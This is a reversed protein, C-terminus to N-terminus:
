PTITLPLESQALGKSTVVIVKGTRTGAPVTVTIETKAPNVTFGTGNVGRWFKVEFSADANNFGVGYITISTVGATAEYLSLSSIMPALDLDVTVDNEGTLAINPGSGPGPSPQNIVWLLFYVTATATETLYNRSYAKKIQINCAGASTSTITDGSIACGTATSGSVLTETVAGSGSGGLITIRFPLGLTAGFTNVRLSDQRAQTIELGSRQYLVAQYYDLSGITMTPTDASVTYSDVNTPVTTVTITDPSYARIPRLTFSNLKDTTSLLGGSGFWYTDAQAANTGQTSSWYNRVSLNGSLNPAYLADYMEKVELTSPLFWDSRGGFTLDAAIKAALSNTGLATNILRTNEAGSGIASSTGTVSTQVRAWATTSEVSLGSWNIPAVELYRGGSSIGTAANIATPSIYFITGGGPGTDGVECGGGQACPKTWDVGTYKRVVTGADSSVLGSIGFIPLSTAQQNNFVQSTAVGATVTITDAKSVTFTIPLSTSQGFNDTVTITDYYPGPTLSEQVSLRIQGPISTTDWNIGTRNGTAFSVTKTDGGSTVTFTEINLSGYKQSPKIQNINALAFRDKTANYNQLVKAQGLPARYLRVFGIDMASSPATSTWFWKNIFVRDTSSAPPVLGANQASDSLTTAVGNIYLEVKAGATTSDFVGVVHTWAGLTLTQSTRKYTWSGNYFGTFVTRSTDICLFYPVNTPSQEAGFICVQSTSISQLNIYAEITFAGLTGFGTASIYQSSSLKLNGSYDDNFTSGGVITVPKKTGSIDSITGNSRSYSASNAMDINFVLDNSEIESYNVVSPPASITISIPITVSASVSDTVTLTELYTGVSATDSIRLLTTGVTSTDLTIGPIVPSLTYRYSPTGSSITFTENRAVNIQKKITSVGTMQLAGNIVAFATSSDSIFLGATDSDTVTLRYLYQSGSTSTDTPVWAFFANSAGTGQKITTFPGSAGATTSEWRFTRTLMATASDQAVNTTFTETMGVNLFANVPKTYTPLAATIYRVVVVGASGSIGAGTAIASGGYSVSGGWGNNATTYNADVSWTAHFQNSGTHGYEINTIPDIFGDGAIGYCGSATAAGRASGGLGGWGWGGTAGNYGSPVTGGSPGQVSCSGSTPNGGGGGGTAVTSGGAGQFNNSGGGGGGLATIGAGVGVYSSGGNRNSADDAKTTAGLGGVGVRVPIPSSATFSQVPAYTVGGGGGAGAPAANRSDSKGAGGGGGVVITTASLTSPPKWGGYQTIYTRPFKITTYPGSTTVTKVDTFSLTDATWNFLDSRAHGGYALNPIKFENNRAGPVFNMDFYAQMLPSSADNSHMSEQIESQTRAVKWIKFEDIDGRWRETGGTILGIYSWTTVQNLTSADSNTSATTAPRYPSGAKTYALQGNIYLKVSDGRNGRLTKSIAVHQWEGSKVAVGTPVWDWGGDGYLIFEYLGNRVVLRVSNERAFYTCVTTNCTADPRLWAEVTFTDNLNNRPDQQMFFYSYSATITNTTDTESTNFYPSLTLGNLRSLYIEMLRIEGVSLERNFIIVDSVQFDSRQVSTWNNIGFNAVSTLQTGISDDNDAVDIGNARYAVAQDTSLLWQTNVVRADDTLWAGHHTERVGYHFGSLWNADRATFVRENAGSAVYRAVHFLTYGVNLNQLTIQSSPTGRVALLSKTSGTTVGGDTVGQNLISLGTATINADSVSANTGSSDIWGKRSSDLLQLDGPSYRGAVASALTAPFADASNTAYRILIVGSGGKGGPLKMGSGTAIGGGGGGGTNATADSGPQNVSASSAFGGNGGGNVGTPATTAAGNPCSGGGGGGSYTNLSGYFYNSIGARGTLGVNFCTAGAGGAGGSFGGNGAVGGAGGASGPVAPSTSGGLASFVVGASTRVTTSDGAFATSRFGFNGAGGGYGVKLDLTSGPTVAISSRSLAAGGGGGGGSDGAGGGGGGVLFLDIVSVTAPVSWTCTATTTVRVVTYVDVTNSTTACATVASYNFEYTIFGAGNAATTLNSATITGSSSAHNQGPSGSYARCEGSSPRDLGGAAGGFWGGGGGGPGGGDGSGCGNNYVGDAGNAVGSSIHTGSAAAATGGGSGGAGGGGGGAVIAVDSNILVVSGAGGGGGAGSTGTGGAPGGLGGGVLAATTWVGNFKVASSFTNAGIAMSTLGKSGGGNAQAGSAGNGGAGGPYFSIRDGPTVPFTGAVYGVTTGAIGLSSADNGGTGGAAGRATLTISFVGAPVVVDTGNPASAYSVDVAEAKPVSATPALVPPLVTQILSLGLVTVLSRAIRQPSLFAHHSQL